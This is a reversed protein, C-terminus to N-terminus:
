NTTQNNLQNLYYIIFIIKYYIILFHPIVLRFLLLEKM